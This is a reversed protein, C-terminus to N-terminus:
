ARLFDLVKGAEVTLFADGVSSFILGLLIKQPDSSEECKQGSKSWIPKLALYLVLCLIPLCKTLPNHLRTELDSFHWYNVQSLFFPALKWIESSFGM